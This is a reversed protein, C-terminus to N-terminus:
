RGDSRPCRRGDALGGVGAQVFLHTPLEDGRERLQEVIEQAMLGYGAMVDGVVADDEDETTDAILWGEGRAAARAAEDVADDYTGYVWVIEAGRDAIRKARAQPVGGHLYVRATGGALEAGAAVALGHNGDSACLLAPLSDLPRKAAILTAIDPLSLSSALARLGAYRGGLVNFSGLRAPRGEDKLTPWGLSPYATSTPSPPSWATIGPHGRATRVSTQRRAHM